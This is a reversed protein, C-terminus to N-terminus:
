GPDAAPFLVTQPISFIWRCRSGFPVSKGAEAFPPFRGASWSPRELPEVAPPTCKSPAPGSNSAPKPHLTSNPPLICLSFRRFYIWLSESASIKWEQPNLLGAIEVLQKPLLTPYCRLPVSLLHLSLISYYSLLSQVIRPKTMNDNSSFTEWDTPSYFYDKLRAFISMQSQRIVTHRYLVM